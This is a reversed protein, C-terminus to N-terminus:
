RRRLRCLIFILPMYAAVILCKLPAMISFSSLFAHTSREMIVFNRLVIHAGKKSASKSSASKDAKYDVVVEFEVGLVPMGSAADTVTVGLTQQVATVELGLQIPEPTATPEPTPSATPDPTAAASPASSSVSSSNAAANVATLAIGAGTGVVLIMACSLALVAKYLPMRSWFSRTFYRSIDKRSM